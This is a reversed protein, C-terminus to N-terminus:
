LTTMKREVRSRVNGGGAKKRKRRTIAKSEALQFLVTKSMFLVLDM